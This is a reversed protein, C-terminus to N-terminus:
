GDTGGTASTNLPQESSESSPRFVPIVEGGDTPLFDVSLPQGVVLGEDTPVDIMATMWPGEVLEVIGAIQRRDDRGHVVTWTVLTAEGSVVQWSLNASHCTPCHSTPMGYSNTPPVFHDHDCQKTLLKGLAAADFFEASDDDRFVPEVGIADTM